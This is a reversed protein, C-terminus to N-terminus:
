GVKSFDAKSIRFPCDEIKGSKKWLKDGALDCGISKYMKFWFTLSYMMFSYPFM